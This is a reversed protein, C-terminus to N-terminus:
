AAQLRSRAPAKGNAPRSPLRFDPDFVRGIDSRALGIDALERDTLSRLDDYVARRQPYSALASGIAALGEGLRRLGRRIGEAMAADRARMAQARITEVETFVPATILTPFLGIQEQTKRPNM